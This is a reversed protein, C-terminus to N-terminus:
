GLGAGAQLAERTEVADEPARDRFCGAWGEIGQLQLLLRQHAVGGAEGGQKGAFSWCALLGKKFFLVLFSKRGRRCWPM